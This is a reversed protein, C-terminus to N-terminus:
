EPEDGRKYLDRIAQGLRRHKRWLSRPTADIGIASSFTWVVVVIVLIAVISGLIDTV